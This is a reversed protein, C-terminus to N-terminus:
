FNFYVFTTLRDPTVALFAYLCLAVAAGQVPRPLAVFRAGIARDLREPTAHSVVGIAIALWVTWPLAPLGQSWDGLVAISARISAADTCRFLIGGLLAVHFTFLIGLASTLPSAPMKGGSRRLATMRFARVAVMWVSFWLGWLVFNWGAGHWLGILLHVAFLNALTRARGRRDAGLADYLFHYFWLSMSIHWRSWFEELSKSKYPADFNKPLRFGLLRASGIAIDSYGAFDGYIQLAFGYTALAFLPAGAGQISAADRYVVDVLHAGLVDAIVLKKALGQLIQFLGAGVDSDDRLPEAALQPLFTRARVIPGAILQPFFSVYLAFDLLSECPKVRRRYVDITYSLTQFTYFSIGAPVVYRLPGGHEAGLYWLHADAGLARMAHEVNEAFFDYYKFFGLIGLNVALSFWLYRKRAREDADARAIGAGAVFDTLTSVALLGVFRPDIGAYFWYSAVLLAAHRLSRRKRLAWFVVYASWLFLAYTFTHFYM